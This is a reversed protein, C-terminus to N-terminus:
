RYGPSATDGAEFAAKASILANYAAPMGALTQVQLIIDVIDAESVGVNRAAGVHFQLQPAVGGMGALAAVTVIQKTKLDLPSQGFSDGFSAFTADILRGALGDFAARINGLAADNLQGYHGIGFEYRDGPEVFEVTFDTPLGRSAAEADLLAAGDSTQVFGIYAALQLISYGLTSVSVGRDLARGIAARTASETSRLALTISVDVLARTKDDLSSIGAVDATALDWADNVLARTNPKVPEAM